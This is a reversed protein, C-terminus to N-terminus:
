ASLIAADSPEPPLKPGLLGVPIGSAKCTRTARASLALLVLVGVGPLFTGIAWLVAASSGLALATRYAYVALAVSAAFSFVLIALALLQAGTGLPSTANLPLALPILVLQAGFWLVLRRYAHALGRADL